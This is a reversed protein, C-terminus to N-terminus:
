KGAFFDEASYSGDVIAMGKQLLAGMVNPAFSCIATHLAIANDESLPCLAYVKDKLEEHMTLDPVETMAKEVLEAVPKINEEKENPLIRTLLLVYCDIIFIKNMRDARQDLTENITLM